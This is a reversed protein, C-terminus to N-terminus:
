ALGILDAARSALRSLALALRAIGCPHALLTQRAKSVDVAPGALRRKEQAVRARVGLVVVVVTRLTEGARAGAQTGNWEHFPARALVRAVALDAERAVRRVIRRDAKRGSGLARQALRVLVAIFAEIALVKEIGHLTAPRAGFSLWAPEVVVAEVPEVAVVREIWRRTRGIAVLSVEALVIILAVGPLTEGAVLVVVRVDAHGESVDPRLAPLM